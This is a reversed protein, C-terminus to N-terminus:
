SKDAPPQNESEQKQRTADELEVSGEVTGQIANIFANEIIAGIAPLIPTDPDDLNGSLQIRTAIQEESQNEFIEAILASGAEVIGAFFGDDDEVIDGKWSFVTVDHLIPKIYGKLHGDDSALEAALELSGAELDFPAYTDLLNKFNVLAVNKAQVDIDFTPKRTSPDLKANLALTGQEATNAQFQARAVLDKSLDRSNVLNFAAGNIAHLAVEIPPATDPNYFGIRGNIIELKDIQLPFLQSALNLWNESVGVQDQSDDTADIFNIEPRRLTVTGVVAGDMLASWLLSFEISDSQFLPRSLSGGQKIILLNDLSYAGKWLMLDVDGVRGQYEGPQSLTRNIYWQAAYPLAIRIALVVLLLGLLGKVWGSVRVM